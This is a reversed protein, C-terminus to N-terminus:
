ADVKPYAKLLTKEDLGALYGREPHGPHNRLTMFYDRKFLAWLKWRHDPAPEATEKGSLAQGLKSAPICAALTAECSFGM